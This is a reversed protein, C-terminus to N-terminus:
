QTSVALLIIHMNLNYLCLADRFLVCLFHVIGNAEISPAQSAPGSIPLITVHYGKTNAVM